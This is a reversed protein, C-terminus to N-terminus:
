YKNVFLQRYATPTVGEHEMFRKNFYSVSPYGSDKAIQGISALPRELLRQKAMQLRCRTMFEIPTMETISRFLKSFYFTSVQLENAWRELSFPEAAELQMIPLLALIRQESNISHHNGLPVAYEIFTTILAYTLTSLKGLNIMRNKESEELLQEHADIFLEPQRLRWLPHRHLQRAIFYEPLSDGYFHIWRMDWPDDESSYYHQKQLPFYLFADGATLTLVQDDIEIFGKGSVVFHINFNNLAGSSRNVYHDPFNIYHGISEPM